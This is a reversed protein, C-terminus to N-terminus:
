LPQKETQYIIFQEVPEITATLIIGMGALAQILSTDSATAKDPLSIDLNYPLTVDTPVYRGMFDNLWTQLMTLTGNQMLKDQPQYLQNLLKGGRSKYTQLRATDVTLRYCAAPLVANRASLGFYRQMDQQILKLAQKYPMPPCLLEYTYTNARKASDGVPLLCAIISDPLEFIVRDTRVLSGYAAKIMQLLPLNIMKYQTTLKQSNRSYRSIVAMGPIFRSLTSRALTGSGDGANGEKFLPQDFDFDEMLALGSIGPKGGNIVLSINEATIDESGTIALCNGGPDIWVYHPVTRHPFYRCAVSDNLALPLVTKNGATTIYSGAFKLLKQKNDRSTTTSVLLVQLKGPLLRQMSDLLNLKKYCNSCWTAWFDLIILKGKLQSLKVSSQKSNVLQTFTIDPVKDGVSLPKLQPLALYPYIILLFCLIQKM